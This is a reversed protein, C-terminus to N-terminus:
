EAPTDPAAPAPAELEPMTFNEGLYTERVKANDVIERPTGDALLTGHDVIYSRDTIALTERVSHDTLLIGLGRERLKLVIQQIDAVAIPDIAAFPEDLLMVAPTLALARAIEIRRKEGGSLTQGLSGRVKELGFEVLLEDCRQKQKAEDPECTELIALLNQEVTMRRFVSTEQPLYGLGRRAREYMALQTVDEGKLLVQGADPRLLGVAMKFTTSKGAGNRGLLGVIEGARVEFGMGDVVTRSGFRKVLGSAAFIVDSGSM